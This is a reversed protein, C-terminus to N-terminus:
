KYKSIDFWKLMGIKKIFRISKASILKNLVQKFENVKEKQKIWDKYVIYISYYHPYNLQIHHDREEYVFDVNNINSSVGTLDFISFSQNIHKYSCNKLCIMDLFFIWDSAIKVDEDYYGYDILNNRKIFTAQHPLADFIFFVFDPREPSIKIRFSAESGMKINFCILDEGSKLLSIIDEFNINSDLTDGSNLFLLYEGKAIRIGKNMAHYIGNDLESVWYDINSKNEEIINISNDSSLGDIVILEINSTNQRIISRITQELGEANNYNVTIISLIM